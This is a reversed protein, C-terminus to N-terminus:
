NSIEQDVAPTCHVPAHTNYAAYAVAVATSGLLVILVLTFLQIVKKKVGGFRLADLVEETLSSVSPSIASAAVPTSHTFLVAGRVTCELLSEPVAATATNKSLLMAFGAASLALGRRVLRKRLLDRARALRGSISGTPWGLQRAAEENTKGELYCLVLPARYKEPLHNMEADLVARLERSNVELLPDDLQMAPTRREHESRRAARIRAKVAVRYAVGYLWNALLEPQAILAAKRVLVLFTAQFADDADHNNQLLRRCVALVMPGHRKVLVAFAAEDKRKAFRELLQSDTLQEATRNPAVQRLLQGLQGNVM